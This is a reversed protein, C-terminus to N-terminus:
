QCKLRTNSFNESFKETTKGGNLTAQFELLVVNWKIKLRRRSPWFSILKKGEMCEENDIEM